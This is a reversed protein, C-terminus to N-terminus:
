GGHRDREGAVVSVSSSRRARRARRRARRAPPRRRRGRARAAPRDDLTREGAVRRDVAQRRADAHALPRADLRALEGLEVAPQDELMADALAVRRRGVDDARLQQEDRVPERAAGGAHPELQELVEDRLQVGADRRGHPREPRDAHGVQGRVGVERVAHEVAELERRLFPERQEAVVRERRRERREREGVRRPQEVREVDRGCEVELRERRVDAGQM